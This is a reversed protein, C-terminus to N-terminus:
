EIDNHLVYRYRVHGEKVAKVGEAVKSMPLEQIWPKIGKDAALKLMANAEKKNGIHTSGFFCGNNIFAAPSVGNLPEDPLGVSIFHKHVGLCALLNNLDVGSAVDVTSIILDLEGAHEKAYNEKSTVIIHDAGMKKIDDVKRDSHSFAFVEAGLAKAFLVAYHGLGGIGIIGVKKGPGAGFRVLPSYVTLGACLMSAAHRPELAEPIAFVFREHARIATSYGGMTKEGNPYKANYTDVWDPCYNENDNKCNKCDFCSSIQAGVGVIDGVKFETVKSGVKTCKGVIEHGVVLPLDPKGWGGTITHLDSACIGCHSIAVDVDYDGQEKLKYDILKFDTYKSTDHIAYGKASM